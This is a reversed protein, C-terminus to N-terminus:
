CEEDDSPLPRVIEEVREGTHPGWTARDSTDLPRVIEGEIAAMVNTLMRDYGRNWRDVAQRTGESMTAPRILARSLAGPSIGVDRAIPRLGSAAVGRALHAMAPALEGATPTEYGCQPCSM